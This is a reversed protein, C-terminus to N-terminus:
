HSPSWWSRCTSVSDKGVRREESRSMDVGYMDSNWPCINVRDAIDGCRHRTGAIPLNRDAALRPVGRMLHIGFRLGLAHAMDALPRFGAGGTASPFRNPAPLLRGHGDM